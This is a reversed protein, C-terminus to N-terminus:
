MHIHLWTSIHILIVTMQIYVIDVSVLSNKTKRRQITLVSATVRCM